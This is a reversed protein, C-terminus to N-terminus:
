KPRLPVWRVNVIASIVILIVALILALSLSEVYSLLQIAILFPVIAFVSYFPVGIKKGCVNCDMSIIPGLFLKGTASVGQNGCHPCNLKSM